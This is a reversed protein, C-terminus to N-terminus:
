LSNRLHFTLVIYLLPFVPSYFAEVEAVTPDDPSVNAKVGTYATIIQASVLAKLMMSLRGEIQNLIGPLFKLGIFSDLVNRAQHQVEDAILTITPLKTLINTMDTTLGHRVKIFPPQDQLITVGKTAVQNAQVADLQRALQTFGVLRRGTWPTAVDVNPSVVSGALAAALYTGDVLYEKTVGMADQINLTAMDPYVLRMRADGLTQALAMAGNPTTGATTGIIATREAKYRISSQIQCSKKLFTYLDTSDGRMLTIIDLQVQGPLVGELELIADRYTQVSAQNEGPARPVQKIGVIVAGNLIALYAALSVPNDPTTAGFAREISSVKSYFQTSYDPKTYVYSVYYIDGVAPEQGGREYTTVIGSDGIAAGQTNAVTLELGPLANNPINANTTFTTSVNFRFTATAGVPYAVWPGTKDTQWGRPLVTFTLGTVLDRYTQGVVGDQGGVGIGSLQSTNATGSGHVTDSSTVYFGSVANDGVGGDGTIAGLGTTYRLANAIDGSTDLVSISSATGAGTLTAPLDEIFLYEAGTDDFITTAIGTSTFFSTSDATLPSAIWTDFTATANSMLAAAVEKATTLTRLATTGIPMGVLSAASGGTVDIRSATDTRGSTIRIGVGEQTVLGAALVAGTNDYPGGAIAAIAAAIQNLVTGGTSAPGLNTPTGGGAAAFTVVVPYGDLAFQFTNNAARAGSGDYFTIQPQYSAGGTTEQGGSLSVAGFVSAPHATAASGSPSFMGVTLGAHTNASKVKVAEANSLFTANHLSGSPGGPLLRNRILLRDYLRDGGTCLRTWAVPGQVLAAQGAGPGSGADLGALITFDHAPTGDALFQLYGVSDDGALQLRFELQASGNAVCEVILGSFAPSALGVATSIATAVDAALANPTAWPTGAITTNVVTATLTGTNGSNDGVYVFNLSDFKGPHVAVPNSFTTKGKLAARTDPNYVYFVDGVTTTAALAPAFTAIGTFAAYGTITSSQGAITGQTPTSGIVIKWGKFFDNYVADTMTSLLGSGVTLKATTTSLGGAVCTDTWGGAALNIAAAFDDITGSTNIGTKVPVDVGDLELDFSETEVDYGLGPAVASSGEYVIEDSVLCAFYSGVQGSVGSPSSLNIGAANLTVGHVTLSLHDSKSPIFEYPASGPFTFKAISKARNEFRVTVIEEVPGTFLDTNFPVEFRVDPTLESGSPFEISVGTLGAGKTSTAFTPVLVDENSANQVTYTGVGSVGPNLVSLTYAADTLTNYYFTAYVKAGVPVPEALTIVLGEVKLVNIRGRSLADNLDFGWYAWVVDPRNVPLDIRGNSVTQFLNQGLPTNRGNGLTPQFPLVFDYHSETSIGGSQSVNASCEALFTHADVLTATVQNEGFATAGATTTGNLATVATGWLIRDNQLIFDADQIYGSGGPVDGCQVVSTVGIHALYDWTDQWTNFFYSITVTSGAKPAVALTVARTTGNVSLPIVQKNNVKVVVHAPDTTTVGGNSGDVIPGNFTYFTTVRNDAMGQIFGLLGLAAGGGISLSFDAHLALASQGYQNVFTVATLTGFHLATIAAAIQAMTYNAKPPITLTRAIGDVTLLLTNNAAVAISGDPNLQNGYLWITTTGGVAADSIGAMAPIIAQRNPVQASLDDTVQTDTRKFFYTIRVLDDAAPAQALQVIGTTGTVARVVIPQGNITVAVDTRNNSTTGSGAGTVIPFHRVQIKDLTGDFSGLTVVGTNSVSVVSRGTADEDVVRQDEVSSSGRVVQLDTQVLSENGEGVIVPLLFTNLGGSVPSEFLTQTYPGPPAYQSGPFAM